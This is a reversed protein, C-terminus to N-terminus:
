RAMEPVRVNGNESAPSLEERQLRLAAIGTGIVSWFWIGGQPGELYVDFAANVSLALWYGLLWIDLKWWFESGARRAHRYARILQAGFLGQMLLWLAMGPLGMRALVSLHGNHPSRLGPTDSHPIADDQALNVGFGKGTWRHDGFVSYGVIKGWWNLRWDENGELQGRDSRTVVSIANAVVQHVSIERPGGYEISPNVLYLVVLLIAAGTVLPLWRVIGAVVAAAAMCLLLALLGGRSVAAVIVADIGWIM